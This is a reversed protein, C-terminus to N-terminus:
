SGQVEFAEPFNVGFHRTLIQYAGELRASATEVGLDGAIEDFAKGEFHVPILVERFEEPLGEAFDRIENLAPLGAGDKDRKWSKALRAAITTNTKRALDHILKEQSRHFIKKTADEEKGIERGIEGFMLDKRRLQIIKREEASLRAIAEDLLQHEDRAHVETVPGVSRRDSVFEKIETVRAKYRSLLPNKRQRYRDHLSSQAMNTVYDLVDAPVDRLKGSEVSEMLRVFTDHLVDQSTETHAGLHGYLSRFLEGYYESGLLQFFAHRSEADQEFIAKGLLTGLVDPDGPDGAPRPIEGM